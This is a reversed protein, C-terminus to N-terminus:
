SETTLLPTTHKLVEAPTTCYRSRAERPELPFDGQVLMVRLDPLELQDTRNDGIMISRSLDIPYDACAQLALGPKPKRFFSETKYVGTGHVPHDYCAYFGDIKLNHAALDASIKAHVAEVDAIKFLGRGVGSQNTVVCVFWGAQRARRIIEVLEPVLETEEPRHLYNVHKVLVGDRDLFLCPRFSAWTGQTLADVGDRSSLWRGGCTVERPDLARAWTDVDGAALDLPLARATLIAGAPTQGGRMPGKEPHLSARVTLGMAIADRGEALTVFRRLDTCLFRAGSLWLTPQDSLGLTGVRRGSDVVRAESFGLARAHRVRADDFAPSESQVVYVALNM